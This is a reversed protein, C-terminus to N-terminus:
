EDAYPMREGAGVAKYVPPEDEMARMRLERLAGVRGHWRTLAAIAHQNERLYGERERMRAATRELREPKRLRKDTRPPPVRELGRAKFWDPDEEDDWKVGVWVVSITVPHCIITGRRGADQWGDKVRVVRGVVWQTM